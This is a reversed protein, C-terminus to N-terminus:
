PRALGRLEVGPDLGGVSGGRSTTPSSNRSRGGRRRRSGAVTLVGPNAVKGDLIAHVQQPKMGAAKAVSRVTLWRRDLMGRLRAALNLPPAIM